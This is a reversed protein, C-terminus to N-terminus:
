TIFYGLDRFINPTQFGTFLRQSALEVPLEVQIEFENNPRPTSPELRTPSGVRSVRSHRVTGTLVGNSLDRWDRATNSRRIDRQVFERELDPFYREFRAFDRLYERRMEEHYTRRRMDDNHEIRQRFNIPSEEGERDTEIPYKKLTDSKVIYQFVQRCLPCCNKRKSWKRLCPFCFNHKCVDPFCDGKTEGLCISCEGAM